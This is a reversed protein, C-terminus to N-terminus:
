IRLTSYRALLDPPPRELELRAVACALAHSELRVARVPIVALVSVTPLPMASASATLTQRLSACHQECERDSGEPHGAGHAPSHRSVEGVAREHTAPAHQHDHGSAVGAAPSASEPELCVLVQLSWFIALILALPRLSSNSWSAPSALALWRADLRGRGNFRGAPVAEQPAELVVEVDRLILLSSSRRV